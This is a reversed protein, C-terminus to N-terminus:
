LSGSGAAGKAALIIQAAALAVIFSIVSAWAVGDLTRLVSIGMGFVIVGIGQSVAVMSPQRRRLLRGGAGQLAYNAVGGVALIRAVPIAPNFSPGFVFPVVTPAAVIVIGGVIVALGLGIRDTGSATGTIGRIVGASAMLLTLQGLAAGASYYGLSQRSVLFTLVLVDLRGNLYQLISGIEAVAAFRVLPWLGGIPAKPRRLNRSLFVIVPVVTSGAAGVAMIITRQAVTRDRFAIAVFVIVCVYITPQIFRWSIYARRRGSALLWGALLEAQATAFALIALSAVLIGNSFLRGGLFLSALVALLSTGIVPLRAARLAEDPKAIPESGSTLVILAQDLSLAALWGLLQGWIMVAVVTGRGAPGISRAIVIAAIVGAAQTVLLMVELARNRDLVRLGLNM